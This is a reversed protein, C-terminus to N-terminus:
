PLKTGTSGTPLLKRSSLYYDAVQRVTPCPDNEVMQELRDRL